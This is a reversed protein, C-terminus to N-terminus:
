GSEIKSLLNIGENFNNPSTLLVEGCIDSAQRIFSYTNNEYARWDLDILRASEVNKPSPIMITAIVRMNNSKTHDVIKQLHDLSSISQTVFGFPDAEVKKQIKNLDPNSPVSLFLKIKDGFGQENLIKVFDSPQMGSDTSPRQPKDGKVILLGDIGLMIADSVLQIVANLNRDRARVSCSLMIGPRLKIIEHAASVSSVRPIGLVSDTLHISNALSSIQSVRDCFKHMDHKLLDLDFTTNRIIKPPNM